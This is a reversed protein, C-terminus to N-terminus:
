SFGKPGDVVLSVYKYQILDLTEKKIEEAYEIIDKRIAEYSHKEGVLEEFSLTQTCNIPVAAECIFRTIERLKSDKRNRQLFM